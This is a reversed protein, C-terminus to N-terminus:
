CTRTFNVAKFVYYGRGTDALQQESARCIVYNTLAVIYGIREHDAPHTRTFLSKLEDRQVNKM